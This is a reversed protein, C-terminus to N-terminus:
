CSPPSGTCSGGTTSAGRWGSSGSPLSNGHYMLAFGTVALVTLLVTLLLHQIRFLLSMRIVKGAALDAHSM